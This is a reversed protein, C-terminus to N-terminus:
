FLDTIIKYNELAAALEPTASSFLSAIAKENNMEVRSVVEFSLKTEPYKGKSKRDMLFDGMTFNPNLIGGVRIKLDDAAQKWQPESYGYHSCNLSLFVQDNNQPLTEIAEGLYASILMQTEESFPDEEIYSQLQPCSKTIIRDDAINQSLLLRRHTGEEITTETGFIIVKSNPHMKLNEIILSVGPEIIGRVPVPSRRAFDTESYIVSLTNCAILIVDPQYRLDIGSLVKDLTDIKDERNKLSNYGSGADFLANVFILNVKRFCGSAKIKTAIDNMVSLGGLGSDTIVVTIEEKKVLQSIDNNIRCASNETLCALLVIIVGYKIVEAM